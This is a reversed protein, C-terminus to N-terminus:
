EFGYHVLPHALSVSLVMVPSMISPPKGKLRLQALRAVVKWGRRVCALTKDFGDWEVPEAVM